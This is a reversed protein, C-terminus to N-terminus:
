EGATAPPTEGCSAELEALIADGDKVLTEAYDILEAHVRMYEAYDGRLVTEGERYFVGVDQGTYPLIHEMAFDYLEDLKQLLMQLGHYFWTLRVLLQVDLLMTVGSEQASAWIATSPKDVIRRQYVFPEPRQGQDYAQQWADYMHHMGPLNHRAGEVIGTFEEVLAREIQEARDASRKRDQYESLLFASYVGVFVVLLEVLIWNARHRDGQRHPTTTNEDRDSAPKDSANKGDANKGNM